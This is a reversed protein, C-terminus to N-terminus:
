RKFKSKVVFYVGYRKLEKGSASKRKLPIVTTITALSIVKKAEARAKKMSDFTQFCKYVKSGIKLSDGPRPWAKPM